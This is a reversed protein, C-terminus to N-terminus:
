EFGKKLIQAIPCASQEAIGPERGSTNESKRESDTEISSHEGRVLCENRPRKVSALRVPHGVERKLRAVAGSFGIEAVRIIFRIPIMEMCKATHDSNINILQAQ